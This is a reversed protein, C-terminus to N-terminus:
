VNTPKRVSKKKQAVAWLHSSMLHSNLFRQLDKRVKDDGDLIIKKLFPQSTLDLVGSLAKERIIEVDLKGPTLIELVHFGARELLIRMSSTNFYNLHTPGSINDSLSGLTLLDFGMINPTTIFLMGNDRLSSHCYLLFRLPDFLHEILEFATIVSIDRIKSKEFTSQVADVGRKRCAACCISNTDVAILSAFKRKKLMEELFIGSGAGVDVLTGMDSHYKSCFTLIKEVRPIFVHKRRYAEAKTIIKSNWLASAASDRFFEMIMSETPRPSIFLTGCENCRMFKFLCKQFEFHTDSSACAPCATKRFGGGFKRVFRRAEANRIKCYNASLKSDRM